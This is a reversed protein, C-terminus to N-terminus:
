GEQSAQPHPLEQNASPSQERALTQYLDLIHRTNTGLDGEGVRSASYFYLVSRNGTEPEVRIRVDDKFHWLRSTVIARLEWSQPQVQTIEWGLAKVAEQIQQFLVPPALPYIQPRLEPFPSDPRTEAVHTQFYTSLRPGIGPPTAWPLQNSLLGGVLLIVGILLPTAIAGLVIQIRSRRSGTSPDPSDPTPLIM